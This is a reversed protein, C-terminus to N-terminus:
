LDHASVAALRDLSNKEENLSIIERRAFSEEFGALQTYYQSLLRYCGRFEISSTNGASLQSKAARNRYGQAWALHDVM